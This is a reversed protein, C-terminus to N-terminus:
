QRKAWAAAAALFQCQMSKLQQGVYAFDAQAEKTAAFAHRYAAKAKEIEASTGSAVREDLSAKAANVAGAAARLEKEALARSEKGRTV